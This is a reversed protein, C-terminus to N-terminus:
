LDFIKLLILIDVIFINFLQYYGTLETNFDKEEGQITSFGEKKCGKDVIIVSRLECKRGRM